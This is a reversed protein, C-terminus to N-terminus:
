WHRGHGHPKMGGNHPDLLGNNFQSWIVLQDTTLLASIATDTQTQLDILATRFGEPDGQYQRRLAEIKAYADWLIATIATQQSADLTLLTTLMAVQHNIRLTDMKAKQAAREAAIKAQLANVALLQDSTLLANIASILKDHEAKLLAKVVSIDAGINAQIIQARTAQSAQILAKIASTTATDITPNAAVILRYYMIASIDTFGNKISGDCGRVNPTVDAIASNLASIQAPTLLTGLDENLYVMEDMFALQTVSLNLQDASKLFTSQSTGSTTPATLSNDKNCASFSVALALIATLLIPKM